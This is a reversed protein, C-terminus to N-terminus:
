LMGGLELPAPDLTLLEAAAVEGDAGMEPVDALLRDNAVAAERTRYLAGVDVALVGPVAQMVAIIESLMVPQGFARAEFSFEARVAQEIHALVKEWRDDEYVKVKGAFRFLVNRYSRVQVTVYPDGAKALAALLNTSTASGPKVEAGDPGAVTICVRRTRGDWTWTALAKAIGAFARAFDEYDQLSVTRDLTLVTLPANRRVDALSERDDAESAELPNTVSRVGLPRTMLVTLQGAKVNGELGIGKRYTIRVNEQGTPVRAGTRGDGFQVTTKGDDDTHTTYVRDNPGCGYLAPVEHWLLDNVRVELTSEAGSSVSAKVYTLPPQRLTFRQYAQGADGSGLVEYVTEGHTAHSVNAYITVTTRDYSNQLPKSSTITTRDRDFSVGIIFAVESVTPDDKDAPMLAFHDANATVSGIFGDRDMLLWRIRAPPSVPPSFPPASVKAILESPKLHVSAPGDASLLAPPEMVQLMDGPQLPVRKDGDASQLLLGIVTAGVVIRIRKGSILLTRGPVLGEVIRDLAIMDDYLPEALPKETLELEESQAFVTVARVGGALSRALLRPYAEALLMRNLQKIGEGQPNERILKQTEESLSVEAFRESNFLSGGALLRNLEEVLAVLLSKPLPDSNLYQDLQQRTDDPLKGLLYRSLPTLDNKLTYVLAAPDKLDEPQFPSSGNEFKALNVGGLTVRTTKASFSYDTRSWEKVSTAQYVEDDTPLSLVLWSGPTVKEYVADLDITDTTLKFQPRRAVEYELSYDVAADVATKVRNAGDSVPKKLVAHAFAAGATAGILGAATGGLVGGAIGGGVGGGLGGILTPIGPVGLVTGATAGIVSGSVGGLASGTLTGLVGSAVGGATATSTIVLGPAVAVAIEAADKAAKAVSKATPSTTALEGKVAIEIAAAAAAAAAAAVADQLAQNSDDALNKIKEKAETAATVLINSGLKAILEALVTDIMDAITISDNVPDTDM